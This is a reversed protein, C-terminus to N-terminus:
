ASYAARTPAPNTDPQWDILQLEINEYGRFRNITPAFCISLSGSTTAISDAWFGRGFAVARVIKGAQRLKVSLHRDGGGMTRPPEVVEVGSAAFVPRRNESGFPGMRELEQVSRLSLDALTVEADVQLEGDSSVDGGSELAHQVLAARFADIRELRIRLGAAARHGGFTELHEACASLGLHLDFSRFSRGSGQGIGEQSNVAILVAPREFHEAIRSAVIGIVGPHWEEHELVLAAHELWDPHEEVLAKAERFIRREVTQRQKNLQDVYEALQMGREPNETTLLEVGLRAQGLRGAANLRPAIAFGVDESTLTKNADLKAVKLLAQM